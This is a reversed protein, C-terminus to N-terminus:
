LIKSRKINNWKSSQSTLLTALAKMTISATERHWRYKSVLSAWSLKGYEPEDNSIEELEQAAFSNFANFFTVYKEVKRPLEKLRKLNIKLSKIVSVNKKESFFHKPLPFKRNSPTTSTHSRETLRAPKLEVRKNRGEETLLVLSSFKSAKRAKASLIIQKNRLRAFANFVKGTHKTQFYVNVGIAFNELRPQRVKNSLYVLLFKYNRLFNYYKIASCVSFAM